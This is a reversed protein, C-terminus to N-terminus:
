RALAREVAEPEREIVRLLIEEWRRPKGRSQEWDRLASPTFGYRRAFAVQSLKRKRRISRVNIKVAERRNRAIRNGVVRKKSKTETKMTEEEDL